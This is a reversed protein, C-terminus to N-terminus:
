DKTKLTYDWDKTEGPKLDLRATFSGADERKWEQDSDALDWAGEAHERVTVTVADERHNRLEVKVKRSLPFGRPGPLGEDLVTRGGVVDFADGLTLRLTEDKATHGGQDEGVLERGAGDAKFVRWKGAPLPMGLGSAKDNKLEVTVRVAQ